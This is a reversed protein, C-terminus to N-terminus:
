QEWHGFRCPPPLLKQTVRTCTPQDPTRVQCYQRLCYLVNPYDIVLVTDFVNHFVLFYSQAYYGSEAPQDLFYSRYIPREEYWFIKENPFDRFVYMGDPRQDLRTRVHYLQPCNLSRNVEPQQGVPDM